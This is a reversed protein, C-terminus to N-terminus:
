KGAGSGSLDGRELPTLNIPFAAQNAQWIALGVLRLCNVEAVGRDLYQLIEGADTGIDNRTPPTILWICVKRPGPADGSLVGPKVVNAQVIQPMGICREGQAATHRERHDTLQEPM